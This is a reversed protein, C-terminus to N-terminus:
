LIQVRKFSRKINRGLARRGHLFTFNDCIVLDGKEWSHEYLYKSMYLRQTLDFFFAEAEVPGLIELSVPNLATSVPEAVRLIFEGSEPHSQVLPVEIEGGYHAIKSTKYRLRIEGALEREKQSLDKYIAQTNTFLTEGGEGVSENCYFLLKRPEKFFAGDWHFPVEECSFLYNSATQDFKLEMIPGFDWHLIMDELYQSKVSSLGKGLELLDLDNLQQSKLIHM